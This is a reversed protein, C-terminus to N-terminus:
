RILIKGYNRSSISKFVSILEVHYGVEVRFRNEAHLVCKGRVSVAPKKAPVAPVSTSLLPPKAAPLQVPKSAQKYFSGAVSGSSSSTINSAPQAGGSTNLHQDTQLPPGTVQLYLYIHQLGSTCIILHQQNQLVFSVQTSSNKLINQNIQNDTGPFLPHPHQTQISGSQSDKRFTPPVFRKPASNSTKQDAPALSAVQNSPQPRVTAVSSGVSPQNCTTGVSQGLRQARRELAKRRNEEIKRQQEATLQNSM